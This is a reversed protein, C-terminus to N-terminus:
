DGGDQKKDEEKPPIYKITANCAISIRDQEGEVPHVFHPLWQPFIVMLGPKPVIRLSPQMLLGTVQHGAQGRTDVFELEGTRVRANTVMVLDTAQGERVYYVGSFHCNPHTHPTAYGRDAYMMAWASMQVQYEGGKKGGMVDCYQNFAQGYMKVLQKGPKGAWQMLKTDSHWTGSANSRYIGEPDKIRKKMIEHVMADNFAEVGEWQRTMVYTPFATMVNVTPKPPDTGLDKLVNKSGRTIKPTTKKKTAM